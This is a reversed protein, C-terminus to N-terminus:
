RSCAILKSKEAVYRTIPQGDKSWSVTLPADGSAKCEIAINTSGPVVNIKTPTVTM